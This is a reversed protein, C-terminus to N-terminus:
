QVEFFEKNLVEEDNSAGETDHFPIEPFTKFTKAVVVHTM